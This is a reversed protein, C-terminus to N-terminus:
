HTWCATRSNLHIRAFPYSGVSVAIMLLGASGAAWFYGLFIQRYTLKSFCGLWAIQPLLHGALTNLFWLVSVRSPQILPPSRTKEDATWILTNEELTELASCLSCHRLLAWGRHSGNLAGQEVSPCHRPHVHMPHLAIQLRDADRGEFSNFEEFCKM